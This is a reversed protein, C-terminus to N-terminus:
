WNWNQLSETLLSSEWLLLSLSTVNVKTLVQAPPPDAGVSNIGAFAQARSCGSLRRLQRQSPALNISKNEANYTTFTNSGKKKMWFSFILSHLILTIPITNNFCYSFYKIAILIPLLYLKTLIAFSTELWINIRFAIKRLYILFYKHIWELSFITSLCPLPM